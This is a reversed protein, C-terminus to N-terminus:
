DRVSRYRCEKGVRREESRVRPDPHGHYFSPRDGFFYRAFYESVGLKATFKATVKAVQIIMIPLANSNLFARFNLRQAAIALVNVRIPFSITMATLSPPGSGSALELSRATMWFAFAALIGLSFISRAM